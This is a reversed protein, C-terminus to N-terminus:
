ESHAFPPLNAINEWGPVKPYWPPESTTDENTVVVEEVELPAGRKSLVRLVANVVDDSSIM